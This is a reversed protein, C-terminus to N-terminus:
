NLVGPCNHAYLSLRVMHEYLQDSGDKKAFCHNLVTFNNVRTQPHLFIPQPEQSKVFRFRKVYLAVGANTDMGLRKLNVPPANQQAGLSGLDMQVM